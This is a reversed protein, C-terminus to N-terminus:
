FDGKTFAQGSDKSAEALEPCAEGREAKELM